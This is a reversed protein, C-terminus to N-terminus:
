PRPARTPNPKANLTSTHTADSYVTRHEHYGRFEKPQCKVAGKTWSAGYAWDEMGGGVQYRLHAPILPFSRPHAPILPSSRPHARGACRSGLGLGM